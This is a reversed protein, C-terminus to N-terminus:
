HQSETRLGEIIISLDEHDTGKCEVGADAFVYSPGKKNGLNEKAVVIDVKQEVLWEAVRIGKAKPIETHPNPMIQQRVIWSDVLRFVIFAFYPADGFHTSVKGTTDALPVAINLYSRAYPQYHILVREILPVQQRIKQEIKMSIKEAKKLDLTRLRVDAELFCFRGANRGTLWLIETVMPESEIIKQVKGLIEPALSADLLVRMGDSLLEWGAYAIFLVVLGAAIQDLTLGWFDIKVNLYNLIVALLVILSSLVDAQRHRGEAILAPSKLRKGVAVAYQGFLLTFLVGILLWGIIWFTIHITEAAPTLARRFIEYGAMFIFIAVIVSILNEIKYLGYPFTKTKRTSLKLGCLVALSAVSDITSDVASAAIALSGTVFTIIIKLVSLCINLIFAYLAVLLIQKTEDAKRNISCTNEFKAQNNISVNGVKLGRGSRRSLEIEFDIM